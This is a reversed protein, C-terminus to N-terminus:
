SAQRAETEEVETVALVGPTSQEIVEAAVPEAPAVPRAAKKVQPRKPKAKAVPMAAAKSRAPKSLKKVKVPAKPGKRKQVKSSKNKRKAVTAIGQERQHKAVCQHRILSLEASDRCDLSDTILLHDSRSWSLM